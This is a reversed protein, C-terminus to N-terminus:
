ATAMAALAFASFTASPTWAPLDFFANAPARLSWELIGADKGTAIRAKMSRQGNAIGLLSKGADDREAHAATAMDVAHQAKLVGDEDAGERV